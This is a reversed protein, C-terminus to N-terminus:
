EAGNMRKVYRSMSGSGENMMWFGMTLMTNVGAAALGRVDFERVMRREDESLAYRALLKDPEEKFRAQVSRNVGLEWLLRELTNVSM